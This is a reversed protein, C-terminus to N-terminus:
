DTKKPAEARTTAREYFNEAVQKVQEFLTQSNESLEPFQEAALLNDHWDGIAAQVQQLYAENIHLDVAQSVLPYNYILVKLRKRCSHLEEVGTSNALCDGIGQLETQYFRAIHKNKAGQVHKLMKRKSRRLMKLHHPRRKRLQRTAKKLTSKEGKLYNASAAVKNALEIHLHSDRVRGSLQYTEKVVKLDRRLDDANATEEILAAVARLKKIGVRFEHLQEQDGKKIFGRLSREAGKHARVIKKKFEKKRM